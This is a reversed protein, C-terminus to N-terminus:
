FRYHLNSEDILEKAWLVCWKIVADEAAESEGNRGHNRDM